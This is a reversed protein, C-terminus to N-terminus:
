RLTTFKGDESELLEYEGDSFHVPIKRKMVPIDQYNIDTINRDDGCLRAYDEDHSILVVGDKTLHVDCELLDIGLDMANRFAGLTNETREYSGGRHASLIPM